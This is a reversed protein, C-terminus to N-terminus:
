KVNVYEDHNMEAMLIQFLIIFRASCPISGHSFLGPKIENAGSGTQRLKTNLGGKKRIRM